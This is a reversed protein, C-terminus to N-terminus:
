WDTQEHLMREMARRLLLPDGLRRRMEQELAGVPLLNQPARPDRVSASAFRPLLNASLSAMRRANDIGVAAGVEVRVIGALPHDVERPMALRLFCSYRDYKGDIIAFLPTREGRRLQEVLSFHTAPLYPDIIRKVVGIVEDRGTARYSLGDVFVCADPGALSVALREEADRMLKQLEALVGNPSNDPSSHAAFPVVTDGITLRGAKSEGSGLILFRDVRIESFRAAQACAHVSGTAISGFLGHTLIGNEGGIVRADVRRVGDVFHCNCSIAATQPPIATWLSCEIDTEIRARGSVEAEDFLISAEYDAPWPDLRLRLGLAIV